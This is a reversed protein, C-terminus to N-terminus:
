ELRLGLERKYKCFIALLAFAFLLGFFASSAAAFPVAFSLVRPALAFQRRVLGPEPLAPAVALGEPTHSDAVAFGLLAIDAAGLVISVEAAIYAESRAQALWVM